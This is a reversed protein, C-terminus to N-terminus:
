ARGHSIDLTVSIYPINLSDPPDSVAVSLQLQSGVLQVVDGVCEGVADGVADGVRDGM